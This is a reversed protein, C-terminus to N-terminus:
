LMSRERYFQVMIHAAGLAARLKANENKLEEIRISAELSMTLADNVSADLEIQSQIYNKM